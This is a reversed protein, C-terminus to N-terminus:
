NEECDELAMFEEFSIEDRVWQCQGFGPEFGRCTDPRKDYVSCENNELLKCPSGCVLMYEREWRSKFKISGNGDLLVAAAKIRPDRDVDREEIEIILKRCCKGCRRCDM